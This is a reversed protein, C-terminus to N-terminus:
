RRGAGSRPPARLGAALHREHRALRAAIEAHRMRWGRSRHGLARGHGAGPDQPQRGGDAVQEPSHGEGAPATVGEPLDASRTFLRLRLTAVDLDRLEAPDHALDWALVENKNTPHSALPWMVASAAASPRSCAPSTCSPGRRRACRRCASSARSATRRTCRSPSTSSSPSGRRPDPAGARHHRARGVACRAGSRAAPRQRAGPRRAQLEPTGDDKKPWEIGDPRLAYACGCWTSCIGAAATTRGNARTPTSSTAGSCSARSRTTSASPTTAWASPAPSRSPASSRAPSSTSPRRRAGPVAAAHHRHDPLGRPEAPLRAGAPLLDDAARRDRQARRRHPHRRVAVPRDRRPVAGFTEYDHWLFTQATM